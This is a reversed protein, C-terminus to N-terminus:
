VNNRTLRTLICLIGGIASDALELSPIFPLSQLLDAGEAVDSSRQHRRSAVVLNWVTYMWPSAPSRRRYLALPYSSGAPVPSLRSHLNIFCFVVSLRCRRLSRDALRYMCGTAIQLELCRRSPSRTPRRATINGNNFM